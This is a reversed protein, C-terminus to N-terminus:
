HMTRSETEAAQLMRSLKQGTGGVIEIITAVGCM